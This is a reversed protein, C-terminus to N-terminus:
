AILGAILTLVALGGTIMGANILGKRANVDSVVKTPIEGRAARAKISEYRLFYEISGLFGEGTPVDGSASPAAARSPASAIPKSLKVGVTPQDADILDAKATAKMAARPPAMNLKKIDELSLASTKEDGDDDAEIAALMADVNMAQTAEDQSALDQAPTPRGTVARPPTSRVPAARPATAKPLVPHGVLTRQPQRAPPADDLPLDNINFAATKEDDDDDLGMDEISFAATKEDDPDEIV